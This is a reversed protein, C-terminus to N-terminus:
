RAQEIPVGDIELQKVVPHGQRDISLVIEARKERRANMLLQEYEQAKGEPIYYRNLQELQEAAIFGDCSKAESCTRREAQPRTKGGTRTLCLCCDSSTACTGPSNTEFDITYSLYHGRLLDRPDYGRVLFRWEPQYFQYESKAIGFAVALLPLVLAAIVFPRPM